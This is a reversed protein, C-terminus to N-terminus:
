PTIRSIEALLGARADQRAHAFADYLANATTFNPLPLSVEQGNPLTYEAIGRPDSMDIAAQNHWRFSLANGM